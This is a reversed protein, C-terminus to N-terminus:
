HLLSLREFLPQSITVKLVILDFSAASQPCSRKKQSPLDIRVM